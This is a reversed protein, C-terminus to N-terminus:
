SDALSVKVCAAVPLGEASGTLDYLLSTILVYLCRVELRPLSLSLICPLLARPPSSAMFATLGFINYM